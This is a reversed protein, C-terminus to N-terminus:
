GESEAVVFAVAQDDAHTISLHLKKVGMAAAAKQAMGTLEIRPAGNHESIIEMEHWSLGEPVRLAKLIAEKAAFRAAFHQAANARERCYARERATFLREELKDPHRAMAQQMRSVPTLDVGIGVIM